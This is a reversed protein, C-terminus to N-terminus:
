LAYNIARLVQDLATVIDLIRDGFVSILNDRDIGMLPPLDKHIEGRVVFVYALKSLGLIESLGR